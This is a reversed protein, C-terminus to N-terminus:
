KKSFIKNLKKPVTLSLLFASISILSNIYFSFHYNLPYKKGNTLGWTLINGGLTPGIARTIAVVVQGIGNIRSLAWNPGSKNVLIFISTFSSSALCSRLSMIILFFTFYAARGYNYLKSILPFLAILLASLLACYRYINLTTVKKTIYPYVLVQFLIFSISSVLNGAGIDRTTFNVGGENPPLITLLPIIMDFFLFIIGILGYLFIITFVYKNQKLFIYFNTEQNFDDNKIKENENENKDKNENENENKNKNENEKENENKNENENKIENENKNENENRNTSGFETMEINEPSSKTTTFNEQIDLDNKSDMLQEIESSEDFSNGNTKKKMKKNQNKNKKTKKGKCLSRKNTLTEKLFFFVLLLGVMSVCFAIFNPLLYPYRDFLSGKKVNPEATYGGIISGIIGGAHWSSAIFSMCRSLHQDDCIESMMAKNIGISGSLLGMLSRWIILWPFNLAFGFFLTTLARFFNGFIIIPKRGVKDALDGYLYSSFIQAIFFCGLVWGAYTGIDAKSKVIDFSNIMFPLYPLIQTGASGDIFISISLLFVQFWM